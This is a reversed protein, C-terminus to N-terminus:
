CRRQRNPRSPRQSQWPSAASAARTPAPALARARLLQQPRQLLLPLQNTRMPQLWSVLPQQQLQMLRHPRM